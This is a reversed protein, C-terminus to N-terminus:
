STALNSSPSLIAPRGSHGLLAAKGDDQGTIRFVVGDTQPGEPHLDSAYTVNPEIPVSTSLPRARAKLDLWADLARRTLKEGM